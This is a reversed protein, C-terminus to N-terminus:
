FFFRIMSVIAIFLDCHTGKNRHVTCNKIIAPADPRTVNIGTFASDLISIYEMRPPVGQVHLASTVNYDRGTGARRIFVLNMLYDGYCYMGQSVSDDRTGFGIEIKKCLSYKGPDFIYRLPCERVTHWALTQDNEYSRRSSTFM